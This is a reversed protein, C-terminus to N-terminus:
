ALTPPFVDFLIIAIRSQDALALRQFTACGRVRDRARMFQREADDCARELSDREDAAVFQRPISIGRGLAAWATVLVDMWAEDDATASVTSHAFRAVPRRSSRITLNRPTWQTVAILAPWYRRSQFRVM